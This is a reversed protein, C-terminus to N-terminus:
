TRHAACRIGPVSTVAPRGCVECDAAVAFVPPATDDTQLALASEGVGSAVTRLAAIV